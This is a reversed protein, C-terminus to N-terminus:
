ARVGARSAASAKCDDIQEDPKTHPPRSPPRARKSWRELTPKASGNPQGLRRYGFRRACWWMPSLRRWRRRRWRRWWRRWRRWRWRWWLVCASVASPSADALAGSRRPAVRGREVHREGVHDFLDAHLSRGDAAISALGRRADSSGHSDVRGTQRIQGRVARHVPRARDHGPAFITRACGPSRPVRGRHNADAAAAM